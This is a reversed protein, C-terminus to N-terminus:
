LEHNNEKVEFVIPLHDSIKKSPHRNKDVLSTTETETIIKLSTDVFRNRLQPRIM